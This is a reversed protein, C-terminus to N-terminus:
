QESLGRLVDLLLAPIIFLRAVLITYSYELSQSTDDPDSIFTMLDCQSLSLCLSLPFCLLRLWKQTHM